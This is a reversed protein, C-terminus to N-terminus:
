RWGNMAIRRRHDARSQPRRGRLRGPMPRRPADAVRLRGMCFADSATEGSTRVTPTFPRCCATFLRATCICRSHPRKLRAQRCSLRCAVPAPRPLPWMPVWFPQHVQLPWACLRRAPRQLRPGRQSSTTAVPRPRNVCRRGSGAGRARLSQAQGRLAGVSRRGVAYHGLGTVGRGRMGNPRSRRGRNIPRSSGRSGVAGAPGVGSRSLM